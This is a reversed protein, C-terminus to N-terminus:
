PGKISFTTPTYSKWHHHVHHGGSSPNTFLAMIIPCLHRIREKEKNKILHIMYILNEDKEQNENESM